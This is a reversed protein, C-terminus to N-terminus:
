KDDVVHAETPVQSHYVAVHSAAAVASQNSVESSKSENSDKKEWASKVQNIVHAYKKLLYAHKKCFEQEEKATLERTNQKKSEKNVIYVFSSSQMTNYLVFM